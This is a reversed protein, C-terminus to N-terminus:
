TYLHFRIFGEKLFIYSLIIIGIFFNYMYM